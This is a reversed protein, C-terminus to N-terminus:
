DIDRSVAGVVKFVGEEVLADGNLVVVFSINARPEVLGDLKNTLVDVM